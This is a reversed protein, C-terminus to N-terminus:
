SDLLQIKWTSASTHNAFSILLAEHKQTRGGLFGQIAIEMGGAGFKDAGFRSSFDKESIVPASEGRGM